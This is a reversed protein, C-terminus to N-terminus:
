RSVTQDLMPWIWYKYQNTVVTVVSGIKRSTVYSGEQSFLRVLRVASRDTIDYV